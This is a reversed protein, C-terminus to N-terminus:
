TLINKAYETMIFKRNFNVQHEHLSKVWVWEVAKDSGRMALALM